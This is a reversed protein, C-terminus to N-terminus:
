EWREIGMERNGDRDRREKGMERIGEGREWREIGM